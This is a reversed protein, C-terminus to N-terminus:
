ICTGLTPASAQSALFIRFRSAVVHFMRLMRAMVRDRMGGTVLAQGMTLLSYTNAPHIFAWASIHAGEIGLGKWKNM